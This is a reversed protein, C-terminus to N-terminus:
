VYLNDTYCYYRGYQAIYTTPKGCKACFPATPQAAVAPAQAPPPPAAAVPAPQAYQPVYGVPPAGGQMQSRQWNIAPDFKLYAILVLVGVIIYGLIFGVIMWLITRPKAQEYQHQNVMTELEKLRVYGIVDIIGFILPVIGIIVILLIAGAIISIIGIILFLIRAIHLM